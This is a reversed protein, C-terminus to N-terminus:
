HIGRCLLAIPPTLLLGFAGALFLNCVVAPADLGHDPGAHSVDSEKM